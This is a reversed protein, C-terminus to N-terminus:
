FMVQLVYHRACVCVVSRCAPQQAIGVSDFNFPVPGCDEIGGTLNWIPDQWSCGGGIYHACIGVGSNNEITSGKMGVCRVSELLVNRSGTNESVMSNNIFINAGQWLTGM